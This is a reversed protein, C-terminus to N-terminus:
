GPIEELLQQGVDDHVSATTEQAITTTEQLEPTEEQDEEPPSPEIEEHKDIDVDATVIDEPSATAVATAVSVILEPQVRIETTLNTNQYSVALQEGGTLAELDLVPDKVTALTERICGM